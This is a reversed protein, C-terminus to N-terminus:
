KIHSKFSNSRQVTTQSSTSTKFPDSFRDDKIFSSDTLMNLFAVLDNKEQVTLVPMHQLFPSLTASQAIHEGYHDVVENLSKFRGDHMYPATLAINRLTVVRFRGKDYPQGTVVERGLDKPLTDLGNNHYLESFTKPGDHCHGCSTRSSNFFLDIGRQEEASPRYTGQLYQDYRSNASILTREFQALARAIRDGNITDSGFAQRFLPPYLATQQLRAASVKLPQGMEHPHELPISAQQELGEVRGDWFFHNVWLLNVLSMSNRVTGVSDIGKSFTRGDTFALEQRHCTACSVKSNASLAKEYFLMRGLKVGEATTPNNSPIHIRNGFYSPYTFHYATYASGGGPTHGPIAALLGAICAICLLLKTM